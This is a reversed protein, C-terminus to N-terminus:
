AIPVVSRHTFFDGIVRVNPRLLIVTYVWRLSTTNPVSHVVVWYAAKVKYSESELKQCPM